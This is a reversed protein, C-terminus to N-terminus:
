WCFTVNKLFSVNPFEETIPKEIKEPPTENFKSFEGFSSLPKVYTKYAGNYFSTFAIDEGDPSFAAMFNGGLTNTIQTSMRAEIDFIFLNPIDQVRDSTFVIRTGDQSLSPEVDNGLGFTLQTEEDNSIDFCFIKDLGNLRRSYYLLGTKHDYNVYNIFGKKDTIKALNRTKLDYLFVERGGDQEGTFFISDSDMFFPHRPKLVSEFRM